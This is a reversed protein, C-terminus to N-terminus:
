IVSRWMQRGMTVHHATEHCGLTAGVHPKIFTSQLLLTTKNTELLGLLTLRFYDVSVQQGENELYACPDEGLLEVRYYYAFTQFNGACSSVSQWWSISKTSLDGTVPIKCNQLNGDIQMEVKSLAQESLSRMSFQVWADHNMKIELTNMQLACWGLLFLVQLFILVIILVLGKERNIM